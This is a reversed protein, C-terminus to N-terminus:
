AGQQRRRLVLTAAAVFIFGTGLAAALSRGLHARRDPGAVGAAPAAPRPHQTYAQNTSAAAFQSLGVLAPFEPVKVERGDLLGGWNAALLLDFGPNMEKIQCACPGVLLDAMQGITEPSIAAGVAPPLVRGRGFVPFLMTETKKKLDPHWNLLQNVLLREAPDNRAVRVTSFAIRLPLELEMPPDDAASPPLQLTQELRRSENELTRALADNEKKERNELLLWVATPGQLLRRALERRAPSDILARLDEGELPGKWVPAEVRTRGPYRVVVWPLSPNTQSLWLKEFSPSMGAGIDVQRAQLNVRGDAGTKEMAQFLAKQELTLPDKHFLVLVFPDPNWRELAYRFVPVNCGLAAVPALVSAGLLGLVAPKNRLEALLM